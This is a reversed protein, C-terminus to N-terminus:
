IYMHICYLMVCKCTCWNLFFDFKGTRATDMNNKVNSTKRHTQWCIGYQAYVFEGIDDYYAYSFQMHCLMFSRVFSSYFLRFFCSLFFVARFIWIRCVCKIINTWWFLFYLVFSHTLIIILRTKSLEFHARWFIKLNQM